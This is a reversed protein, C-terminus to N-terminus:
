LNSDKYLKLKSKPKENITSLVDVINKMGKTDMELKEGIAITERLLNIDVKLRRLEFGSLECTAGKLGNVRTFSHKRGYTESTLVRKGSSYFKFKFPTFECMLPRAKYVGCYGTDMNLYQCFNSNNSEQTNEAISLNKVKKYTFDKVKESYLETFDKWRESSTDYVLSVKKCCGGCIKDCGGMDRGILPSIELNPSNAAEIYDTLKQLSDTNQIM